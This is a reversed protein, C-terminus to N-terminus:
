LDSWYFTKIIEDKQKYKNIGNINDTIFYGFVTSHVIMEKDTLINDILKIAEELEKDPINAGFLSMHTHWDCKTDGKFGVTIEKDQTTLWFILKGKRSKYEIDIINNHKITCEDKFQPFRDIIKPIIYETFEKQEM